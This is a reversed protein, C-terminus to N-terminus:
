SIVETKVVLQIDEENDILKRKVFVSQPSAIAEKLKKDSRRMKPRLSPLTYCIDYKNRRSQRRTTITTTTTASKGISANDPVLTSEDSKRSAALSPSEPNEIVIQLTKQSKRTKTTPSNNNENNEHYDSDPEVNVDVSSLINLQSHIKDNGNEPSKQQIPTCPPEEIYSDIDLPEDLSIQSSSYRVKNAAEFDPRFNSYRKPSKSVMLPTNEQVCHRRLELANLTRLIEHIQEKAQQMSQSYEFEKSSMEALSENAESLKLELAKVQREFKMNERRLMLNATRLEKMLDELQRGKGSALSYCKALARNQKKLMINADKLSKVTANARAM